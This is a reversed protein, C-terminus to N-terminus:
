KDEVIDQSNLKTKRTNGNPQPYQKIEKDSSFVKGSSLYINRPFAVFLKSCTIKHKMTRRINYPM